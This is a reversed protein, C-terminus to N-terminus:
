KLYSKLFSSEKLVNNAEPIKLMTELAESKNSAQNYYAKVIKYGIWYGLDRPRKDKGSTSYLWDQYNTKDMLTVFEKILVEEHEEGYNFTEPNLHIGSILEGIFDAGGEMISAELLSPMKVAHTQQFHILEHAILPVLRDLNKLKEVGIILGDESTTGGSNFRGVVFYVPPFQAAPYLAKLKRYVEKVQKEKLPLSDLVHRSKLYDEKSEVVKKYLADANEIRNETFGRLGTSGKKMYEKFPNGSSLSLSDFATWFNKVDSTVFEAQSPDHTFRSQSYVSLSILSGICITILQKMILKEALYCRALPFKLALLDPIM